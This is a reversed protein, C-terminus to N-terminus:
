CSTLGGDVPLATGTIFSADDSLLFTVVKGVQDATAIRGLPYVSAMDGLSLSTDEALQKEVLPTMVDGPCLANVRIKHTAGELALSKAFATVAGKTAGYISCAANGQLGADSSIIVISGGHKKLAGYAARCLLVTGFVNVEFIRRIEESKENELLEQRYYGASTVLGTVMRQCDDEVTVDGKVYIVNGFPEVEHLAQLGREENRGNIVVNMGARACLRASALGIGSTGGSILVTKKEM